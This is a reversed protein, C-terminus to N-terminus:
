PQSARRETEQKAAVLANELVMRYTSFFLVRPTSDGPNINVQHAVLVKDPEAGETTAVPILQWVGDLSEVDGEVLSFSVNEPYSELSEIVTRSRIDVVDPVVPIVNTQEFVRRAEASELLQSDEVNPLFQEFNDYDTLVQWTDEISADVLVRAIFQGSDGTREATVIVQGDTLTAQEQETLEAFPQTPDATSPADQALATAALPSTLALALAAAKGWTRIQQHFPRSPM